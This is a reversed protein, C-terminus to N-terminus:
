PNRPPFAKKKYLFPTPFDWLEARGEMNRTLRIGSLECKIKLFSRKAGLNPPRAVDPALHKVSCLVDGIMRTKQAYCTECLVDGRMGM